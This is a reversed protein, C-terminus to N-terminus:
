AELVAWSLASKPMAAEPALESMVEREGDPFKIMEGVPPTPIPVVLKPVPAKTVTFPLKTDFPSSWDM